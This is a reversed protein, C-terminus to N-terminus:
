VMFVPSLDAFVHLSKIKGTKITFLDLCPISVINGDLRTYVAKLECVVRDDICWLKDIHHDVQSVMARFRGAAQGLTEKGLVYPQNGVAYSCDDAFYALYEDLTSGGSLFSRVLRENESESM